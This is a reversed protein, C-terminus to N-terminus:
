TAIRYAIKLLKFFYTCFFYLFIFKYTWCVYISMRMCVCLIESVNKRKQNMETKWLWVIQRSIIFYTFNAALANTGFIFILTTYLFDKKYFFLIFGLFHSFFNLSFILRELFHEVRFFIVLFYSFINKCVKPMLITSFFM